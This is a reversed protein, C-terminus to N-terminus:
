GAYSRMQGSLEANIVRRRYPRVVRHILGLQDVPDVYTPMQAGRLMFPPRRSKGCALLELNAGTARAMGAEICVDLNFTDESGGTIDAVVLFANKITRIIAPQLPDEHIENGVVTPMGTVREIIDRLESNRHSSPADLDVALFVYHPQCPKKWDAWLDNIAGTVAPPCARAVTDMRYWGSDDGDKRRVRPDAIVVWPIGARVAFDLERLFYQYPDETACANESQRYPIIGVFAGCSSMISEWSISQRREGEFVSQKADGILRFGASALQGCAALASANDSPRWSLSVYVDRGTQPDPWGDVPHFARLISAALEPTLEPKPVDIWSVDRVLNSVNAGAV